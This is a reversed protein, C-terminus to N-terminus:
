TDLEIILKTCSVGELLMDIGANINDLGRGIVKPKPSPKILDQWLNQRLWTGMWYRFQELRRETENVPQVFIVEMGNVLEINEPVPPASAIKAEQADGLFADLVAQCLAIDGKALFCHRILLGDSHASAIISKVVDPDKYDFVRDAGLSAVYDQNAPGTTAYVAGITSNPDKKLLRASQVGMTGVSSSAGWILLAEKKRHATESAPSQQNLRPIGMADWASLPVQVSVPLTAAENWSVHDPVPVAHQWPVLVREQFAGYDPGCAHWFFAAYAAIRTLGPQFIQSGDDNLAQQPVDQGVELVVGALDFGVVTPYSPIFLGTNRIIGDAPNLAISKVAILLENAGPKPTKRPQVKFPAGKELAVAALHTSM